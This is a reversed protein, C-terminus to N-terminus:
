TGVKMIVFFPSLSEPMMQGHWLISNRLPLSAVPNFIVKQSIPYLRASDTGKNEIDHGLYKSNNQQNKM